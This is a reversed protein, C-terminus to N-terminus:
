FSPSSRDGVSMAKGIKVEIAFVWNGAIGETEWMAQLTALVAVPGNAAM